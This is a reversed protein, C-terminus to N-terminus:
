ACAHLAGSPFTDGIKAHCSISRGQPKIIALGQCAKGALGLSVQRMEMEKEDQEVESPDREIPSELLLRGLLPEVRLAFTFDGIIDLVELRLLKAQLDRGPCKPSGRISRVRASCARVIMSLISQEQNETM